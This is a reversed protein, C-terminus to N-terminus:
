LISAKIDVAILPFSLDSSEPHETKSMGFRWYMGTTTIPLRITGDESTGGRSEWWKWGRWTREESKDM